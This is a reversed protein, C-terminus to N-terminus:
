VLSIVKMGKGTSPSKVKVFSCSSPSSESKQLMKMSAELITSTSPKKTKWRDLYKQKSEETEHMNARHQIFKEAINADLYQEKIAIYGKEVSLISDNFVTTEIGFEKKLLENVKAIIEKTNKESCSFKGDCSVLVFLFAVSFTLFKFSKYSM